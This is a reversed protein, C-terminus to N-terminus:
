GCGRSKTPLHLRSPNLSTPGREIGNADRIRGGFGAASRFPMPTRRTTSAAESTRACTRCSDLHPTRTCRQTATLAARTAQAQGRFRPLKLVVSLLLCALGLGLLVFDRMRM